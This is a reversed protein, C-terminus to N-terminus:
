RTVLVCLEFMSEYTAPYVGDWCCCSSLGTLREPSTALFVTFAITLRHYEGESFVVHSVRPNLSAM